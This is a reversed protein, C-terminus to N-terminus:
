NRAPVAARSRAPELRFESCDSRAHHASRRFACGALTSEPGGGEGKADGGASRTRLLGRVRVSAYADAVGAYAQAMGADLAIAENFFEISKRIADESRRNLYDQGKLYAEYAAPNTARLPPPTEHATVRARIQDAVAKAVERQLALVDGLEREYSEAWLHRESSAHILQATIRIRSGARLVTGEVVADVRLARAIEPLSKDTAKYQMTSTRSIVVFEGFRGLDTILAETMGDAFYDQEPDGSLNALPLVVLSAIPPVASTGAWRDRLTPLNMGVVIAVVVLAAAIVALKKPRGIRSDRSPSSPPMKTMGLRALDVGLERASQYRQEPDKDLAKVIIRELAPSVQPNIARPPVIDRHLIAELLAVGNTDPFLQQGTALEYLIAGAAYIDVRADVAGRLQEPAMYPATGAAQPASVSVTAAAADPPSLLRALGFDLIKLRGDVTLRLNGPKLDRHVIAEAHAAALGDVLQMGLHVVDKEPLPRAAGM